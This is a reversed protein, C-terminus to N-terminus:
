RSKKFWLCAACWLALGVHAVVAPWLVIGTLELFLGAYALLAAVVVDYILVGIVLGFQTASGLDNRALWCAVGISFLAAGAVRCIVIGVGAIEAGFLLRVVIPPYVLLAIGTIAEAVTTVAFLASVHVSKQAPNSIDTM